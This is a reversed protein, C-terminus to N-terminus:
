NDQEPGRDLELEIEYPMMNASSVPTCGDVGGVARSAASNWAMLFTEQGHNNPLDHGNLLRSVIPETRDFGIYILFDLLTIRCHFSKPCGTGDPPVHQAMLRRVSALSDQERSFRRQAFHRLTVYRRVYFYVTLCRGHQRNPCSSSAFLSRLLHDTTGRFQEGADLMDLDLLQVYCRSAQRRIQDHEHSLLQWVFSRLTTVIVAQGEVGYARYEFRTLFELLLLLFATSCTRDGDTATQLQQQIYRVTRPLKFMVEDLSVYVPPWDCQTDVYQQQQGALKTSCSTYLQLAANRVPWDPRRFAELAVIMLEDAYPLMAENMSASKVLLNLQHLALMGIPQLEDDNMSKVQARKDLKVHQQLYHRLLLSDSVISGEAEAQMISHLLFLYGRARRFDSRDAPEVALTEWFLENVHTDPPPRGHDSLHVLRTSRQAKDHMIRRVVRGLCNASSEIVGRHCCNLLINGFRKMCGGLEQDVVDPWRITHDLLWLAYKETFVAVARLSKWLEAQMSRKALAIEVSTPGPSGRRELVNTWEPSRELLLQMSCEMIEFSTGATPTSYPMERTTASRSANLLGLVSEVVSDIARTVAWFPEAAPLADVLLEPIGFCVQSARDVARHLKLYVTEEDDDAFSTNAYLDRRVNEAAVLIEHEANALLDPFLYPACSKTHTLRTLLSADFCYASPQNYVLSAVAIRVDDYESRLLHNLAFVNAHFDVLQKAPPEVSTSRLHALWPVSEPPRPTLQYCNTPPFAYCQEVLLTFLRLATITQQYPRSDRYGGPCLYRGYMNYLHRPVVCWRDDTSSNSKELLLRCQEVVINCLAICGPTEIAELALRLVHDLIIFKGASDCRWGIIHYSLTKILLGMSVAPVPKVSDVLRCLMLLLQELSNHNKQFERQFANALLFLRDYKIGRLYAPLRDEDPALENLELLNFIASHSNAPLTTFWYKVINRVLGIDEETLLVNAVLRHVNESPMARLMAQGGSLLHKYRLSQVLANELEDVVITSRQLVNGPRYECMLLALLHYKNRNQWHWRELSCLFIKFAFQDNRVLHKLLRLMLERVGRYPSELHVLTVKWICSETPAGWGPFDDLQELTTLMCEAVTHFWRNFGASPSQFLTHLRDQVDIFTPNPLFRKLFTSQIMGYLVISEDEFAQATYCTAKACHLVIRPSLQESYDCLTRCLSFCAKSIHKRHAHPVDDAWMLDYLSSLMRRHMIDHGHRGGDDPQTTKTPDAHRRDYPLASIARSIRGSKASIEMCLAVVLSLRNADMLQKYWSAVHGKEVEAQMSEM